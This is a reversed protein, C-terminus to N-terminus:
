HTGYHNHYGALLDRGEMESAGRGIRGGGDSEEGRAKKRVILFASIALTVAYAFSAHYCNSAYDSVTPSAFGKVYIPQTSSITGICFLFIM